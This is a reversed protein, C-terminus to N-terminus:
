VSVASKVDRTSRYCSWSKRARVKHTGRHVAQIVRSDVCRPAAPLHSQLAAQFSIPCEKMEAM